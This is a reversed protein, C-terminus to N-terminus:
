RIREHASVKNAAWNACASGSGFLSGAQEQPARPRSGPPRAHCAALEVSVASSSPRLRHHSSCFRQGAGGNASEQQAHPQAARALHARGPDLPGTPAPVSSPAGAALSRVLMICHGLDVLEISLEGFSRLLQSYNAVNDLRDSM